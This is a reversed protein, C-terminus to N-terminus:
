RARVGQLLNGSAGRLAEATREGNRSMINNISVLQLMSQNLNDLLQEMRQTSMPMNQMSQQTQATVGRLQEIISAESLPQGAAATEQMKGRLNNAMAAMTSRMSSMERRMNPLMVNDAGAMSSMTSRMSEMERRMNPLIVGDAGPIFTEPGREGVLYSQLSQVPGGFARPERGAELLSRIQEPSMGELARTVDEINDITVRLGNTTILPAFLSQFNSEALTAEDVQGPIARRVADRASLGQTIAVNGISQLLRTAARQLETNASLNRGIEQNVGAASDALAITAINLDRSPGQGAGGGASQGGVRGRISEFFKAEAEELTVDGFGSTFGRDRAMQARMQEIGLRSNESSAIVEAQSQAVDSFSGLRAIARNSASVSERALTASARQALEQAAARKEEASANSKIIGVLQRIQAATEANNAAFRETTPTAPAGGHLIDQMYAQAQPSIQLGTFATDFAEQAGKIGQAELERLAAINKGDRQADILEARQQEASEGTIEAMFAINEAMALTAKTVQQDSMGDMMAQRRLLTANDLLFENAEELTYGLNMMGRIVQGDEFMARSLEAFRKAGGNVGAGLGALAQSNRGILNAFQDLPLRTMAAASRLAGLDGNFGAGVKSLNQFVRQTDELYGIMNTVSGGFLNLAGGVLPLRGALKGMEGSFDKVSGGSRQIVGTFDKFIGGAAQGAGSFNSSPPTTSGSPRTGFSGGSSQNAERLIQAFARAQAPDTLDITGAM